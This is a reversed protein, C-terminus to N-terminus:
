YLVFRSLLIILIIIKNHMIDNNNQNNITNKINNSVHKNNTTYEDFGYFTSQVPHFKFYWDTFASELDKYSKVYSQSCSFFQAVLFLITLKM